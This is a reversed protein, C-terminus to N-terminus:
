EIRIWCRMVCDAIGFSIGNDFRIALGDTFLSIKIGYAEINIDAADIYINNDSNKIIHNNCEFGSLTFHSLQCVSFTNDQAPDVEEAPEAPMAAPAMPIRITYTGWNEQYSTFSEMMNTIGYYSYDTIVARLDSDMNACWSATCMAGDGEPSIIISTRLTMNFLNAAFMVDIGHGVYRIMKIEGCYYHIMAGDRTIQFQRGMKKMEINDVMFEHHPRSNTERINHKISEITEFLM